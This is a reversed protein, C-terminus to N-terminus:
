SIQGSFYLETIHKRSIYQRDSLLVSSALNDLQRHDNYCSTINPLICQSYSYDSPLQPKIRPALERRYTIMRRRAAAREKGNPAFHALTVFKFSRKDVRFPNRRRHGTEM